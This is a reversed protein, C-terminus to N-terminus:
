FLCNTQFDETKEDFILDDGFLVFVREFSKPFSAIINVMHVRLNRPNAERLERSRADLVEYGNLLLYERPTPTLVAPEDRAVRLVPISPRIALDADEKTIAQSCVMRAQAGAWEQECHAESPAAATHTYLGARHIVGDAAPAPTTHLASRSGGNVCRPQHM